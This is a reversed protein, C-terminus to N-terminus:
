KYPWVGVAPWIVSTTPIVPLKSCSSHWANCTHELICWTARTPIGGRAIRRARPAGWLQASSATSFLKLASCTAATCPFDVGRCSSQQLGSRDCTYSQGAYWSPLVCLGFATSLHKTNPLMMDSGTAFSRSRYSVTRSTSLNNLPM